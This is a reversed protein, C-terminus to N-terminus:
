AGTYRELPYLEGMRADLVMDAVEKPMEQRSEEIGYPFSRTGRGGGNGRAV